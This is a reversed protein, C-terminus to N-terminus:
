TSRWSALYWNLASNPFTRGDDVSRSVYVAGQAVDTTGFTGPGTSSYSTDSPEVTDPDSAQWVSFVGELQGTPDSTLRPELPVRAFVFESARPRGQVPRDATGSEM